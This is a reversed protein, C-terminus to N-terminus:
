VNIHLSHLGLLSHNIQQKTIYLLCCVISVHVLKLEAAFSSLVVNLAVGGRGGRRPDQQHQDRVHGPRVVARHPAVLAPHSVEEQFSLQPKSISVQKITKMQM